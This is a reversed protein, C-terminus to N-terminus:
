DRLTPRGDPLDFHQRMMNRVRELPTSATRERVSTISNWAAPLPLPARSRTAAIEAEFASDCDGDPKLVIAHIDGNTLFGIGVIEGSDNIAVPQLTTFNPGLYPNLDVMRGNDWLFGHLVTGHCDSSTGIVQGSANIHFGNSCPDGGITGLDTMRGKRWLFAHHTGDPLDATGIVSGADNIWSAAGNTGGLTGIDTLVGREWFFAHNALDGSVDSLGVVQGHNNVSNALGLVGGLTGLNVMRGRDWLFPAVTPIGTTPNPVDNTFSYGTVQGSENVVLGFSDPGGLTGIDKLIGNQWVFAHWANPYPLGILCGFCWTDPEANEAGGTAQGRNNLDAALSSPGGFTGMDITGRISQFSGHLEPLGSVPEIVGFDGSGVILGNPSIANPLSFCGGPLLGLNALVGKDWLFTPAIFGDSFPDAYPCAISTDAAGAVAGGNNIMPPPTGNTFSNPGGFTGLDVFSYKQHKPQEAPSDQAALQSAVALASFLMMVVTMRRSEM